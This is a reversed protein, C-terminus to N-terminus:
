DLTIKPTVNITGGGSPINFPADTFREAWLVKTGAANSVFYGYVAVTGSTFVFSKQAISAYTITGSLSITWASGTCTKNAYGFGAAPCTMSATTTGDAPTIDSKFLKLIPNTPATKNVIMALMLQEGQAPAVLSM